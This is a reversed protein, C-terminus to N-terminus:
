QNQNKQKIYNEVMAKLDAVRKKQNQQNQQLEKIESIYKSADALMLDNGQAINQLSNDVADIRKNVCRKTLEQAHLDKVEDNEALKNIEFRQTVNLVTKCERCPYNDTKSLAKKLCIVDYRHGSECFSYINERHIFIKDGCQLCNRRDMAFVSNALFSMVFIFIYKLQTKVM